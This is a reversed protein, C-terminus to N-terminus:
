VIQPVFCHFVCWLNFKSWIRSHIIHALNMLALLGACCVMTYWFDFSRSAYFWPFRIGCNWVFVLISIVNRNSWKTMDENANDRYRPRKESYTYSDTPDSYRHHEIEIADNKLKMHLLLLWLASTFHQLEFDSSDCRILEGSALKWHINRSLLTSDSVRTNSVNLSYSKYIYIEDCMITTWDCCGWALETIVLAFQIAVMGHGFDLKGTKSMSTHITFTDLNAAVGNFKNFWGGFLGNEQNYKPLKHKYLLYSPFVTHGSLICHTCISILILINWILM